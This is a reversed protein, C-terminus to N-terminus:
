EQSKAQLSQKLKEHRPERDGTLVINNLLPKKDESLEECFKVMQGTKRYTMQNQNLLEPKHNLFERRHGRYRSYGRHTVKMM